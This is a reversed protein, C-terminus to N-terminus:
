FGNCKPLINRYAKDLIGQHSKLSVKLASETKQVLDNLNGYIQSDIYPQDYSAMQMRGNQKQYEKILKLKPVVENFLHNYHSKFENNYLMNLEQFIAGSQADVLGKRISANVNNPFLSLIAQASEADFPRNFDINQFMDALHTLSSDLLQPNVSYDAM